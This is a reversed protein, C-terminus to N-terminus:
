RGLRDLWHLVRNREIVATLSYKEAYLHLLILAALILVQTWIEVSVILWFGVALGLMNAGTDGLMTEARLDDPLLLAAGAALPAAYRMFAPLGGFVIFMLALSLFVKLARGPRVDLLNFANSTLSLLLLGVMTEPLPKDMEVLVALSVAAIGAAKALGTTLRRHRAWQLWHGKLGKVQGDGLLDDLLGFVLVATLAFLYQTGAHLDRTLPYSGTFFGEGYRIARFVAEYAMALIWLFFGAVTPITQGRYNIETVGHDRLFSIVIPKLLLGLGFAIL